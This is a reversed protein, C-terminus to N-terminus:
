LVFINIVVVPILGFVVLGFARWASTYGFAQQTAVTMAAVQWLLTAMFLVVAAQPNFSFARLVAPAQAFSLTSILSVLGPRAASDRFAIIGLLATATVWLAWTFLAGLIGFVFTKGVDATAQEGGLGIAGVGTALAVMVVVVGAQFVAGGGAAIGAYTKPKLLLIGYLRVLFRASRPVEPPHSGSEPPGVPPQPEM